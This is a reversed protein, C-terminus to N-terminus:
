DSCADIIGLVSDLHQRIQALDTKDRLEFSIMRLWDAKSRPRRRVLEEVLHPRLLNGEAPTDPFAPDIVRSKFNLLQQRLSEVRRARDREARYELDNELLVEIRKLLRSIEANRSKFWDTSWVRHIKWGQNELIEQRLRDRDRASRGSHYSAGDCEIGLLYAGRGGPHRVALDIFFGAVGVQPVVDYGKDRLVSGVSREFDNDPQQGGGDPGELIGTKAYVLYQKFARLGWSSSGTTLIKDPDLSSFVETRKRARTFLVNLRRHGNPGNIPGFRQYQNGTSDPGYTASVYIVDREDGQVNELNKIFLPEVGNSMREQYSAAFPELRMRRDLAEEILERQEFNLAVVGLSEDPHNQMHDLIADVVAEAEPANRRQDFVGGRVVRYKVGLSPSEHHASPFIVLDGKYFERNSFAILSHHRSRYHWRLRRVPQYLTCAVDLISEGEELVTRDDDSSEDEEAMVRQFFNTPPLQKPDGVIVMQGGRALAGVAEEPKLQSAEDMVVLDFRLREPALYQAVSLPGMMFCPKMGQLADGARHVLQRIPIHRKQKSIEHHILALDTWNKVPGSQHGYPVHRRDIVAAARERFLRIAQKDAKAFQDRIQEQTIGSFSFLEPHETFASRALTNFFCFRFAQVLQRPELRSSDILGTLKSLGAEAAQGRLHLFHLWQSLKEKRTLAESARIAAREVSEGEDRQWQESRTLTRIDDRLGSLVVGLRCAQELWGRLQKVRASHDECVLWDFTAPPLKVSVVAEVYDITAKLFVSQGNVTERSIGLREQLDAQSALAEQLDQHEDIAEILESLRALPVSSALDFPELLSITRGRLLIDRELADQASSLPKAYSWAERTSPLENIVDILRQIAERHPDLSAISAILAKLTETRSRLLLDRLKGSIDDMGPLGTFVKEYWALLRKLNEWSTELGRFRPGLASRLEVDSVFEAHLHVYEAVARLRKVLELRHPRDSSQSLTRFVRRAHKYDRGFMRQFFGANELTRAYARLAVAGLESCAELDFATALAAQGATLRKSRLAAADITAALGEAEFHSTRLDILDTPAEALLRLTVLVQEVGVREFPVRCGMAQALAKFGEEGAKFARQVELSKLQQDRLGQVTDGAGRFAASAAIVETLATRAGGGLLSAPNGAQTANALVARLEAVKVSAQLLTSLGRRVGADRCHVLLDDRLAGNPHPLMTAQAGAAELGRPCCDLSFGTRMFLESRLERLAQDGVVVSQLLEFLREQQNFDLAAEVWSWPHASLDSGEGLIESLHREYVSLFQESRSVDAPALTLAMPLLVNDTLAREYSLEQFVRDRAWLVDFVTAGYPELRTNILTVYQTLLRKKEEVIALQHDLERPDRFSGHLKLRMAVDNLLADKRTKHSHLELCFTGLGVEDLRRRVVELAALKESVFLVTKGGLMAAAILNTITQSKGTGPPGEIVLNKGRLAEILASHQSSDADVVLPPLDHKLEPADIPHEEAHTITTLKRGEFLERVLPHQQIQPWIRSDLDRYMLLKGFSLLSLTACAQVRWRKKQTLLPEFREFYSTPTEEDDVAPIEVGFDRRMKEILSLNAPSDDGSLEIFAGFNDGKTTMRTLTVPVTLLPALHVQRSDDAEYWELFGFILHLMNTGSEEIATKAASSVKRTLTDLSELFHLAPLADSDVNHDSPETLVYSTNWGLRKAYDAAPVKQMFPEGGDEAESRQLEEGPEPEPVPRFALREGNLLRRYLADIDADVVRITSANSHRFNLLRNRNTLDLLRARIKELGAATGGTFDASLSPAATAEVDPANESQNM